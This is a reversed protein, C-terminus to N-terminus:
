PLEMMLSCKDGLDLFGNNTQIMKRAYEQAATLTFGVKMMIVIAHVIRLEDIPWDRKNGKGPAAKSPLLYGQAIWNKIQRDTVGLKRTERLFISSNM